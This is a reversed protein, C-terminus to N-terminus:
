LGSGAQRQHGNGHAGGEDSTAREAEPLTNAHHLITCTAWRGDRRCAAAGIAIGHQVSNLQEWVGVAPAQDM